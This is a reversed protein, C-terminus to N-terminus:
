FPLDNIKAGGQADENNIYTNSPANSGTHVTSTYTSPIDCKWMDISMFVGSKGDKDWERGKLNVHATIDMGISLGNLINMKQERVELEYVQPYQENTKIRLKQSTYNKGQYERTVPQDIRTVTGKLELSM